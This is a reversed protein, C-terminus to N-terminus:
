AKDSVKSKGKSSSRLGFGCVAVLALITTPEPVSVPEEGDKVDINVDTQGFGPSVLSLSDDKDDVGDALLTVTFTREEGAAVETFEPPTISQVYGFEDSVPNLKIDQFVDTLGVNIADVLNSSDSSLQVVSGFGFSDVLDEYASRVSNTVAFIPIIDADELSQKVQELNPYDEGTGPPTGDLVADGNNAPVSPFDGAQHFIADTSLVVVKFADNRFGIESEGRVATQLLAELQSEPGDGGRKTSLENVTAQLEDTDSTLGLDTEYVFDSLPSGFPSIPKDVYSGVGFQADSVTDTISDVLSPVLSKVNFLDDFFSGSLDQLLFLDLKNPTSPLKVKVTVPLPDNADLFVDYKEPSVSAGSSAPTVNKVESKAFAQSPSFVATVGVSLATGLVIKSINRLSYRMFSELLNIESLLINIQYSIKLNM